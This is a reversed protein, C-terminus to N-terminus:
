GNSSFNVVLVALIIVCMVVVFIGGNDFVGDRDDHGYYCSM